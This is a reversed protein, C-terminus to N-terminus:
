LLCSAVNIGSYKACLLSLFSLRSKLNEKDRDGGAPCYWINVLNKLLIFM